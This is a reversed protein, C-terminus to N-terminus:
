YSCYNNVDIIEAAQFEQNRGTKGAAATKQPARDAEWKKKWM